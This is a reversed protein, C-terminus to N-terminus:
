SISVSVMSELETVMSIGEATRGMLSLAELWHLFHERCFKYVVGDDRLIFNDKKVQDIWYKCADQLDASIYYALKNDEIEPAWPGPTALQCINKRLNKRMVQLYNAALTHHVQRAEELGHVRKEPAGLLSDVQATDDISTQPKAVPERKLQDRFDSNARVKGTPLRGVMSESDARSNHLARLANSAEPLPATDEGQVYSEVTLDFEDLRQRVFGTEPLLSFHNQVDTALHGITETEANLSSRPLQVMTSSLEDICQLQAEISVSKMNAVVQGLPSGAKLSQSTLKNQRRLVKNLRLAAVCYLPNQTTGSVDHLLDELEVQAREYNAQGIYTDIVAIRFCLIDHRNDRYRARTLAELVPSATGQARSEQGLANYCKILETTTIVALSTTLMGSSQLYSRGYELGETAAFFDHRKSQTFSVGLILNVNQIREEDLLNNRFGPKDPLHNLMRNAEEMPTSNCMDLLFRDLTSMMPAKTLIRRGELELILRINGSAGHQRLNDADQFLSILALHGYPACPYLMGELLGSLLMLPSGAHVADSEMEFFYSVLKPLTQVFRRIFDAQRASVFDMFVRSLPLGSTPKLGRLAFYAALGRFGYFSDDALAPFRNILWDEIAWMSSM